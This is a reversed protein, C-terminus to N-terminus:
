TRFSIERTKTKKYEEYIQKVEERMKDTTMGYFKEFAEKSGFEKTYYRITKNMLTDFNLKGAIISDYTPFDQYTHATQSYCLSSISLFICSIFFFLSPKRM